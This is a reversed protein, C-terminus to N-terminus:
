DDDEDDWGDDEDDRDDDDDRDDGDRGHRGDWRGDDDDDRRDDDGRDDDDRDDDHDEGHPRHPPEDVVPEVADPEAVPQPDEVPPDPAPDGPEPEAASPPEAPEDAPAPPAPESAPAPEVPPPAPTTSAPEVAQPATTTSAPRPPVRSPSSPTESSTDEVPPPTEEIPEPTPPAEEVVAAVDAERVAAGLPEGVDFTHRVVEPVDVEDDGDLLSLFDPQHPVSAVVVQPDGEVAPGPVGPMAGAMAVSVAAGGVLAQKVHSLQPSPAGGFMRALEYGGRALPPLAVGILTPRLRRLPIAMFARVMEPDFQTGSHAKLEELAEGHSMAPKYSRPATMVEYSDTLTIIRAARSIQHGRLGRPYGRGDWREHHEAVGDSWPALWDGLPGLLLRGADPHARLVQWELDDPAGHKNLLEPSVHLKGIDHLLAVWRLKDRDEEDLGLELALVDTYVRVREAHGRTRRDHRDLALLLELVAEAAATVDDGRSAAQADAVRAELTRQANVRRALRFRSPIAEPFALDLRYLAELPLALMALKRGVVFVTIVVVVMALAQMLVLGIGASPPAPRWLLAVAAISAAVPAVTVLIRIVSATIPRRKWGM